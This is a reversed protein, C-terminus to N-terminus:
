YSCTLEVQAKEPFPADQARMFLSFTTDGFFSTPLTMELPEGSKKGSFVVQGGESTSVKGSYTNYPDKVRAVCNLTYGMCYENVSDSGQGAKMPLVFRVTKTSGLPQSPPKTADRGAAQHKAKIDAAMEKMAQHLDKGQAPAAAALGLALIALILIKGTRASIM